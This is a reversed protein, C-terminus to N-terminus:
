ITYLICKALRMISSQPVRNKLKQGRALAATRPVHFNKTLINSLILCFHFKAFVKVQRVQVYGSLSRCVSTLNACLQRVQVYCTQGASVQKVHM